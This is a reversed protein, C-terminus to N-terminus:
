LDFKNLKSSGTPPTDPFFQDYKRGSILFELPSDSPNAYRPKPPTKKIM